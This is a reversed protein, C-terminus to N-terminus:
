RRTDYPARIRQFRLDRFDKLEEPEVPGESGLGASRYLRGAAGWLLQGEDTDAWEWDPQALRLGDDRVLLHSVHRAPQSPDEDPGIGRQHMCRMLTWRRTIPKAHQWRATGEADVSSWGERELGFFVNACFQRGLEAPIRPYESSVEPAPYGPDLYVAHLYPPRSVVHYDMGSVPDDYHPTRAHYSFWRGDESLDSEDPRLWNNRLMQGLQFRDSDLDWLFTATVKEPGRLM